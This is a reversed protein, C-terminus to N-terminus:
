KMLEEFLAHPLLEAHGDSFGCIVGDKRRFEPSEYVVIVVGSQDDKPRRYLLVPKGDKSGPAALLTQLAQPDMGAATLDDLRQPWKGDRRSMYAQCAQLIGRAKAMMMGALEDMGKRPKGNGGLMAYGAPPEVSFLGADLGRDIEIDAYTFTRGSSPFSVEVQVPSSDAGDLYVTTRPEATDDSQIVWVDRGHLRKRGGDKMAKGATRVLHDRVDTRLRTPKLAGTADDTAYMTSIDELSATKDDPHMVLRLRKHYDTITVEPRLAGRYELRELDPEKFMFTTQHVTTRGNEGVDTVVQRCSFTRARDIGAIAAAFAEGAVPRRGSWPSWVLLAVLACAAVAVIRALLRRGRGNAPARAAGNTAAQEAL